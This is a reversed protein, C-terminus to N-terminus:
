RFANVWDALGNYEQRKARHVLWKMETKFKRRCTYLSPNIHQFIFDNRTTWIAWSILIIVEMAFPLNLLRKLNAVEDQISSYLPQWSPCLYKWCMQAFQCQFFLHDRTELTHDNCMVCTYDEIFFNKRMLMARTNQRNYIVLWYFIKHKLQCCSKWLWKFVMLPEPHQSLLSYAKSVKYTSAGPPLQWIDEAEQLELSLLCQELEQYQIYAEESLPLHFHTTLEDLSHISSISINQNQSFSFLHPWLDKKPLADWTDMWFALTHGNQLQCGALDKYTPMIKLCDRWWFSCTQMNINAMGQPYYIEWILKVWPIDLQNIFKHVMKMLLCTNQTQLNLIGLGGKCKPRCLLDWAALPPNKKELDKGRWFIHRRYKDVQEIIGKYLLLCSMIFTPLSSFVANVLLLRGDYSLYQSCVNLRRQIREIIYLFHEMKPKTYSLPTGLYTFPFTGIACGLLNSLQQMQENDVNIPLLNSKQFNVKLGSAKSFVDLLEKLHALQIPCAPMVILTDDAYQLVPFDTCSQFNIPAQILNNHMANNLITQLFDAALVFLLPSLPDGQRVGRRCKFQHGPIGNLLVSSTASGLIDKIWSCWKNGFGKQQLIKMIMGHEIKDFAKEFDLKLVVIPKKSKHCQFLFEYAWAICDQITRGKLFGYQNVHVLDLIVSQLRNALLKTLLKITCSLLSIPRYDNVMSAGAKKPILTIYSSNISQLSLDGRHFQTCLDYFDQKIIPWCKKIFDTNFGDPGPSKHSPLDKIVADIEEQAFPLELFSLDQHPQILNLLEPPLDFSETKGLRDLFADHLIGAKTDHGFHEVGDAGVLSTIFNNRHQITAMAHFFQSNESGLTVWKIKGRQQWYDKQQKLLKELHQKLNKRLSSELPCLDRLNELADLMSILANIFAIDEKLNSLTKGWTKLSKRLIKMKANIRKAADAYHISQKWISEVLPLFGENDMWWNEFRFITSKPMFNHIHILCPVHDSTTMALPLAMTNPYSLTWAPSTFFWDLKELLPNDQM